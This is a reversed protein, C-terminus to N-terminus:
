SSDEDAEPETDERMKRHIFDRPTEPPPEEAQEEGSKLKEVLERLEAARRLRAEEEPDVGV